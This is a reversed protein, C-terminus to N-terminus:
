RKFSMEEEGWEAQVELDATEPPKGEEYEKGSGSFCATMETLM